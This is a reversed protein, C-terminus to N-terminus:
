SLPEVRNQNLSSGLWNEMPWVACLRVQEMMSLGCVPNFSHGLVSSEHKLALFEARLVEERHAEAVAKREHDADEDAAVHGAAVEVGGDREGHGDDLLAAPYLDPVTCHLILSRDTTPHDRKELDIVGQHKLIM